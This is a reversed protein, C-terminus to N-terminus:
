DAGQQVDAHRGCHACAGSKIGTVRTEYGRRVILAKGCGPCDTNQGHTTRVNGMYVYDLHERCIAYARELVASPTAPVDMKYQPHYASLHLPVTRGLSTNVWVALRQLNDDADNLGPILLNTIEVHRGAAVAQRCFALVPELRGHCQKRYFADDMSKIDINLADVMPLLEAAPKECVYGNSVVVNAMGRDRALAVCDRVFEYGVLPENYTYAIAMSESRRATEIVQSPTYLAATGDFEQSITWNQCFECGFNCGWGGVSFISTGPRFHYLPKKEIPDLHASSLRGYGMAKLEGGVNVRVKCIGGQGDKMRCGHPCLDCQLRGDTEIHWFRATTLNMM